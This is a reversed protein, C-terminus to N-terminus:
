GIKTKTKAVSSDSSCMIRKWEYPPVCCVSECMFTCDNHQTAASHAWGNRGVWEGGVVVVSFFISFLFSDFPMASWGADCRDFSPSSNPSLVFVNDLVNICKTYKYLNNSGATVVAAFVLLWCRVGCMVRFDQISQFGVFAVLLCAFM